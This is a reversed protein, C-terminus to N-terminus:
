LMANNNIWNEAHEIDELKHIDCNDDVIYPLVNNGM